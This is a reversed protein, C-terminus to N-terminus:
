TEQIIYSSAYDLPLLMILVIMDTAQLAQYVTRETCFLCNEKM